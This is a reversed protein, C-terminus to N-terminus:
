DPTIQDRDRPKRRTLRYLVVAAVAVAILWLSFFFYRFFSWTSEGERALRLHTINPYLSFMQMRWGYSTIYAQQHANALALATAQVDSADFKFYFPWRWGTDENRYVRVDAIDHQTYILYMDRLPQQASGPAPAAAKAALKVEAGTITAITHTPLVYDLLVTGAVALLALLVFAFKRLKDRM